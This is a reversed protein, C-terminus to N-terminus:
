IHILSLTYARGGLLAIAESQLRTLDGSGTVSVEVASM